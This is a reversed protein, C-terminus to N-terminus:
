NYYTPTEKFYSDLESYNNPYQIISSYLQNTLYIALIIILFNNITRIKNKLITTYMIVVFLIYDIDNFLFNLITPSFKCMNIRCIPCQQTNEYWRNICAEHVLGNCECTKIYFCQSNLLLLDGSNNEFCIFCEKDKDSNNSNNSDSNDSDSNNSDSNDSDSNDINKFEFDDNYPDFTQFAM